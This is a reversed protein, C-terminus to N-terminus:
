AVAESSDSESQKEVIKGRPVMSKFFIGPYCVTLVSIAVCCM